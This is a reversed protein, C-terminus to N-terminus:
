GKAYFIAQSFLQCKAIRGSTERGFSTQSVHASIGYQHCTAVWIHTTSRIPQILYGVLCSWDSASVLDPYNIMMLISNRHNNRLHWKAPFGTTTNGFTPQKRLNSLFEQTPPQNKITLNTQFGLPLVIAKSASHTLTVTCYHKNHLRGMSTDTQKENVTCYIRVNSKSFGPTFLNSAIRPAIDIDVTFWLIINIQYSGINSSYTYSNFVYKM